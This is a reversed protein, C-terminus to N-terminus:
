LVQDYCGTKNLQEVLKKVDQAKEKACVLTAKDAQVVILDRVGVLATLRNGALVINKGADLCEVTGQLANGQADHMLYKELATWSGIDDWRFLGEAMTVREAKEMLAYDISIRELYTYERELMAPFDPQSASAAWTTLLRALAPQHVELASQLVRVSWVFIGSNWFYNGSECFARAKPSDPKEVFRRARRFIVGHSQGAHEGAEIYGFATSPETPPIGIIVLADEAGARALCEALTCRFAAADDVVQDAPLVCFVANPDRAKILAGGLVVAAASDRGVPEGIINDTPLIPCAQCAAPQGERSTVVLIRDPPILGQLRDVAQALLPQGGVLALFQKPQKKTSLPWFREGRGGALVVAYYNTKM